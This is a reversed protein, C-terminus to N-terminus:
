ISMTENGVDNGRFHRSYMKRLVKVGFCLLIESTMALLELFGARCGHRVM